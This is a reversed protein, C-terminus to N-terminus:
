IALNFAVNLKEGVNSNSGLLLPGIRASLPEFGGSSNLNRTPIFSIRESDCEIEVCKCKKMFTNFTKVGVQQLIPDFLGKWNKPHAVQELSGDLVAIVSEGLSTVDIPTQTFVPESLIWVGATTKSLAHLFIKGDRQYATAKKMM